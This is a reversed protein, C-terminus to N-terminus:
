VYSLWDKGGVHDDDMDEDKQWNWENETKNYRKDPSFAVNKLLEPDEPLRMFRISDCGHDNAKVPKEDLNKDSKDMSLEPFKYNILEKCLHPCKDQFIVWKGRDIYSNVRLIGADINNNGLQFYLGYEQYLFQVSKGNIPDTKNGISPDAVMFRLRGAAIEDIKPKIAKAHEPVLANPKYYEDYTYVVGTKPDIAHFYVATPNRLGHDLTVFREWDKPIDFGYQFTEAIKPYVMGESHEFSGELYRKRWWDPKGKSNMEIFDPPLHKNLRTAWIFTHIQENYEEHEPHKPDKRGVNDAFVEKIWGLDPNSCVMFMKNKVFPDRMRTLIQDYISRKIGSAEEMHCIGANISRLKDEDDSPVTYFVFGNKLTIEGDTKNYSEILPPPCIENFFTKLTTKKLQPLTTATLLGTGRPNELARLFVETLSAKSKGSGYGGFAGVIQVKPTGDENYQLPLRHLDIQYDQPKYTLEIAGCNPCEVYAPHENDPKQMVGTYCNLCQM